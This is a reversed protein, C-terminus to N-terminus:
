ETLIERVIQALIAANLEADKPLESADLVRRVEAKIDRVQNLFRSPIRVVRELEKANPVTVGVRIAQDDGDLLATGKSEM